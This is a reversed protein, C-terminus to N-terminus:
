GLDATVHALWREAWERTEPELWDFAFAIRGAHDRLEEFRAPHSVASAGIGDQWSAGHVLIDGDLSMMIFAPNNAGAGLIGNECGVGAIDWHDSLTVRAWRWSQSEGDVSTDQAVDVGLLFEPRGGAGPSFLGSDRALREWEVNFRSGLDKEEHALVFGHRGSDPGVHGMYSAVNVPPLDDRTELVGHFVLGAAILKELAEEAVDM